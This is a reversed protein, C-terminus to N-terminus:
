TLDNKSVELEQLHLFGAIENPISGQLNSESLQIRTVMMEMVKEEEHPHLRRERRRRMSGLSTGDTEMMTCTVGEWECENTKTGWGQANMWEDGQMAHFM